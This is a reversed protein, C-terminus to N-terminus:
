LEGTNLKQLDYHMSMSSIERALTAPSNNVINHNHETQMSEILTDKAHGLWMM